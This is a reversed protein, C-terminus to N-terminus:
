LVIYAHGVDACAVFIDIAVGFLTKIILVMKVNVIILSLLLLM